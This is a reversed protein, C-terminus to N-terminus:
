QMEPATPNIVGSQALIDFIGATDVCILVIYRVGLVIQTPISGQNFDFRQVAFFCRIKQVGAPVRFLDIICECSVADICHQLILVDIGYEDAMIVNIVIEADFAGQLM